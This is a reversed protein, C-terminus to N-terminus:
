VTLSRSPRKSIRKTPRRSQPMMASSPQPMMTFASQPALSPSTTPASPCAMPLFKACVIRATNAVPYTQGCHVVISAWTEALKSTELYNMAYPPTFDVSTRKIISSGKMPYLKGFKGSLDGLECQDYLGANYNASNCAYAYGLASTRGLTPCLPSALFTSPSYFTAQSQTQAQSSPGCALHPDYHNGAGSTSTGCVSLGASNTAINNWYSHIHYTLGQTVNCVRGGADLPLPTSSIDLYLSYRGVGDAISMSVYGSTGGSETADIMACFEYSSCRFVFCSLLLLVV